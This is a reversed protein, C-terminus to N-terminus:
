HRQMSRRRSWSATVNGPIEATEPPLSINNTPTPTARSTETALITKIAATSAAKKPVVKLIPTLAWLYSCAGNFEGDPKSAREKRDLVLQRQLQTPGWHDRQINNSDLWFCSWEVFRQMNRDMIALKLPGPHKKSFWQRWLLFCQKTNDM